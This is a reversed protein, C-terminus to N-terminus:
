EAGIVLLSSVAVFANLEADCHPCTIIIDLRAEGEPDHDAAITNNIDIGAFALEGGCAPCPCEVEKEANLADGRM